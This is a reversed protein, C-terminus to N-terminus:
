AVISGKLEVLNKQMLNYTIIELATITASFLLAAIIAAGGLIAIRQPAFFLVLSGIIYLTGFSMVFVKPMNEPSHWVKKDSDSRVKEGRREEGDPTKAILKGFVMIAMSLTVMIVASFGISLLIFETKDIM